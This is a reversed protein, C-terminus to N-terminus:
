RKATGGGRVADLVALADRTPAVDHVRVLRAGNMAALLTLALSGALREDAKRNTLAQLMSKRSLGALLPVGINMFEGLRRLLELNHNLSKGFGFGPDIVISERAIGEEICAQVRQVLFARVEAVVDGYAPSKQMTRPEGLMHMLCVAVGGQAVADLAGPQRLADIDNIMAAGAEIARNMVQPKCTDVSVPVPGSAFAEVVPMIRRWEEEADVPEAGPRSSEGGVDLIDAGEELLRQAHAVASRADFYRGGDSFSDPTVNVIGMILTRDLALSFRGAHLVPHPSPPPTASANM